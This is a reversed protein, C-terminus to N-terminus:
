LTVGTTGLAAGSVELCRLGALELPAPVPAEGELEPKELPVTFWFTCGQGPTSQLGIKGNMGEIIKKSLALGLGVGGHRRTTSSDGQFFPSFLRSQIEPPIGIGTDSVTVSISSHTSTENTKAVNILIHGTDTFKIANGVLHMIIQKLLGPDLILPGPCDEAILLAMELSKRQAEKALIRVAQEVAERLDHIGTEPTIKGSEGEWHDMISNLTALLSSASRYAMDIFERQQPQLAADLTIELMGLIGNLPTRFEHGM